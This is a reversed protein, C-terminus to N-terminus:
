SLSIPFASVYVFIYERGIIIIIKFKLIMTKLYYTNYMNMSIKKMHQQTLFLFTIFFFYRFLNVESTKFTSNQFEILSSGNYNKM